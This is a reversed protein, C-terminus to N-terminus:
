QKRAQMTRNLCSVPVADGKKYGKRRTTETFPVEGDAANVTVCLSCYFVLITYIFIHFSRHM